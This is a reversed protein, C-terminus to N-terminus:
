INTLDGEVYFNRLSWGERGLVLYAKDYKGGNDRLEKLLCIIEYPIKQEATGSVQKWKLSILVKQDDKTAIADIIHKGGGPRKGDSTRKACTYGGRELSLLVMQELVDGTGTDRLSM